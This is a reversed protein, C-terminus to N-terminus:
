QPGRPARRRRARLAGRADPPLTERARRHRRAGRGQRPVQSFLHSLQTLLAARDPSKELLAAVTAHAKDLNGDNALLSAIIERALSSDPEIELLLAAAELAPGYARARVAAEVARRAVQPDRTERAIRAYIALAADLDGRQAAVEAKLFEYISESAPCQPRPRPPPERPPRSRM